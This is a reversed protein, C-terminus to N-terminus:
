LLPMRISAITAPASIKMKLASTVLSIWSYMMPTKVLKVSLWVPM